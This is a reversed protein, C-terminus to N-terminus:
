LKSPRRGPLVPAPSPFYAPVPGGGGAKWPTHHHLWSAPDQFFAWGCGTSSPLHGFLSAAFFPNSFRSRESELGADSLGRRPPFVLRRPVDRTWVFPARAPGFAPGVRQLHGPRRSWHWSQPGPPALWRLIAQPLNSPVPEPLGTIRALLCYPAIVRRRFNRLAARGKGEPGQQASVPSNTCAAPHLGSWGDRIGVHM